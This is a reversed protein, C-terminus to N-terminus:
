RSIQKWDLQILNAKSIQFVMQVMMYQLFEEAQDGTVLFEGMHSVDFLGVSERVCKHEEIIGTYQVPLEWGGFDILRGGAHQHHAFFPTRRLSM